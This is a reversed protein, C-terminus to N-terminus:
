IDGGEGALLKQMKQFAYRMRSKVTSQSCDLVAAIESFRLGGYVRMVVVERQDHPLSSIAARVIDRSERESHGGVPASRATPDFAKEGTRAARRLYDRTKNLAITRLWVAFRGSSRFTHRGKFAGMLTEQVLDEAAQYDWVIKSILSLLGQAHRRVLVSFAEPEGRCVETMIEEDSAERRHM